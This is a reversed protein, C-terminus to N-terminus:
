KQVDYDNASVVAIAKLMDNVSLTETIDLWIQSGGMNAANSSCPIQTDLTIKGSDLAEMILLLSMIKTVSAPHLREHINYEYLIQGTNQEILIASGVDLNLFNNNSIDTNESLSSSTALTPNVVSWTYNDTFSFCSLTFSCLLLFLIMCYITKSNKM